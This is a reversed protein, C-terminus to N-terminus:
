TYFYHEDIEHFMKVDKGNEMKWVKSFTQKAM